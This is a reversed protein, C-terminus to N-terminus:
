ALQTLLEQSKELFLQREIQLTRELEKVRAHKHRVENALKECIKQVIPPLSPM